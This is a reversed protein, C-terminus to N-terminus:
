SERLKINRITNYIIIRHDKRAKTSILKECLWVREGTEFDPENFDHINKIKAAYVHFISKGKKTEQTLTYGQFIDIINSQKLGLEEEAERIAGSKVCKDTPDVIGKAIQPMDGGYKPDSPVMFYMQILNDENIYFPICGARIM